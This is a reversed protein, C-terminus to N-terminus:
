FTTFGKGSERGPVKEAVTLYREVKPDLGDLTKRLKFIDHVKPFREIKPFFKYTKYYIRGHKDELYITWRGTADNQGVYFESLGDKGTRGFPIKQVFDGNRFLAMRKIDKATFTGSLQFGTMIKYGSEDYKSVELNTLRLNPVFPQLVEKKGEKGEAPATKPKASYEGANIRDILDDLPSRAVQVQQIVQHKANFGFYKSWNFKLIEPIFFLFLIVSAFFLFYLVNKFSVGVLSIGRSVSSIM